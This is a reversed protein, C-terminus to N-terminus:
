SLLQRFIHSMREQVEQLGPSAPLIDALQTVPLGAYGCPNIHTFPGLDMAVNLALGHYCRGQRVRLGLAAIKHERKQHRVYVGPADPKSYGKTEYTALLEIVSCELLRVMQKVSLGRRKLDVLTYALLQGPGHYTIQGGRDSQVLPIASPLLLHEAKGAQGQTYVPAHQLFWIEDATAPGRQATFDQMQQWLAQYDQLGPLSRIHLESMM